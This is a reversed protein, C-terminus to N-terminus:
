RVLSPIHSVAKRSASRGSLASLRRDTLKLPRSRAAQLLCLSPRSLLPQPRGSLFIPQSSILVFRISLARFLQGEVCLRAYGFRLKPRDRKVAPNYAQHPNLYSM